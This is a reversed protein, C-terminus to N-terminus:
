KLLIDKDSFIEIFNGSNIFVIEENKKIQNNKINEMLYFMSKVSSNMDLLLGKTNAFLILIKKYKEKINIEKNEKIIKINSLDFDLNIKLHKFANLINTKIDKYKISSSTYTFTWKLKRLEAYLYLGLITDTEASWFNPSELGLQKVQEEIEIGYNIYALIGALNFISQEHIVYTKILDKQKDKTIKNILQKSYEEPSKHVKAGYLKSIIYNSDNLDSNTEVIEIKLNHKSCLSTLTTSMNVNNKSLYIIDNFEKKNIDGLIYELKRLETGSTNYNVQNEDKFFIKFDSFMKKDELIEISTSTHILKIKPFDIIKNIEKKSLPDKKIIREM